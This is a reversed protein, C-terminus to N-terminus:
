GKSWPQQKYAARMGHKILALKKSRHGDGAVKKTCVKEAQEHVAALEEAFRCLDKTAEKALELRLCEM